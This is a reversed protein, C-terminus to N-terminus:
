MVKTPRLHCQASRSTTCLGYNSIRNLANCVTQNCYLKASLKIHRVTNHGDSWSRSGEVRMGDCALVYALCGVVLTCL